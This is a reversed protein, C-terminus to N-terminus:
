RILSSIVFFHLVAGLNVLIHFIEHYSFFKPNLVPRKLGYCLAGVSYVIGGSIILITNGLGISTKIQPLYPLILYGMILYFIASIMKPVNVFFISQVIGVFAVSWITTLLKFSSISDLALAAVPTFTGAIMLYIGSHDLKKWLLRKEPTWNVRHYLTSIGFMMLACIVYVLLVLRELGDNARLVLPVGAGLVVFFMGQHFHGRLFPKM